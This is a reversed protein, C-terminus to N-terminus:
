EEEKDPQLDEIAMWVAEFENRIAPYHTGDLQNYVVNEVEKIRKSLALIEAAFIVIAILLAITSIM